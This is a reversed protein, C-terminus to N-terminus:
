RREAHEARAGAPRVYYGCDHGPKGQLACPTNEVVGLPSSWMEVEGADYRRRSRVGLSRKPDSASVWM